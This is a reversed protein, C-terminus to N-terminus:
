GSGLRAGILFGKIFNGLLDNWDLNELGALIPHDISYAVSLNIDRSKYRTIVIDDFQWVGNQRFQIYGANDETTFPFYCTTGQIQFPQFNIGASTSPGNQHDFLYTMVKQGQPTLYNRCRQIDGPSNITDVLHFAYEPTRHYAYSRFVILAVILILVVGVVTAARKSQRIHDQFRVYVARLRRKSQGPSNM